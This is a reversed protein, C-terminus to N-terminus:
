PILPYQAQLERIMEKRKMKKLFSTAFLPVSVGVELIGLVIIPIGVVAGGMNVCFEDEGCSGNAILNGVGFTLLGLGTFGAGLLLNNKRQDDM